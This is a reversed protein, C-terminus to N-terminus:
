AYENGFKEQIVKRADKLASEALNVSDTRM